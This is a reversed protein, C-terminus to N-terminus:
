QNRKNMQNRGFDVLFVLCVLGVLYVLKEGNERKLM